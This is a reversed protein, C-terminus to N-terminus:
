PDVVRFRKDLQTSHPNRLPLAHGLEIALHTARSVVLHGIGNDGDLLAAAPARQLVKMDPRPNVRGDRLNQVYFGLRFIGHADFGTVDAETM